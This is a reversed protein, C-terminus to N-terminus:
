EKEEGRRRRGRRRRGNEEEWRMRRKRGGRREGEKDGKERGKGIRGGEAERGREGGGRGRRRKRRTWRRRKRSRKRRRGSKRENRRRRRRRRRKRGRRNKRGGWSRKMWTRDHVISGQVGTDIFNCQLFFVCVLFFKGIMAFMDSHYVSEEKSNDFAKETYLVRSLALGFYAGFTHIIISGGADSYQLFEIAIMENIAYFVIEMTGIILLQLRSVIGLVAGYTILVTAAAFESSVLSHELLLFSRVLPIKNLGHFLM